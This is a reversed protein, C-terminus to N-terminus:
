NERHAVLVRVQIEVRARPWRAGGAASLGSPAFAATPVRGVLIAERRVGAPDRTETTRVAIMVALRQARVAHVRVHEQAVRRLPDLGDSTVILDSTETTGARHAITASVATAASEVVALHVWRRDARPTQDEVRVRLRADPGQPVNSEGNPETARINDLLDRLRLARVVAIALAGRLAPVTMVLNHVV